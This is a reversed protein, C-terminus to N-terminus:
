TGTLLFLSFHLFIFFRHVIYKSGSPPVFWAAEYM